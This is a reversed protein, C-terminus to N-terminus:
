AAPCSKSPCIPNAVLVPAGRIVLGLDRVYRKEVRERVRQSSWEADRQALTMEIEEEASLKRLTSFKLDVAWRRAAFGRLLDEVVRPFAFITRYSEDHM